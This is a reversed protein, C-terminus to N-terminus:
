GLGASSLFADVRATYNGPMGLQDNVEPHTLDVPLVKVRGGFQAARAAFAEGQPCSAPRKESCVILMPSVPAGSLRLTPSALRWYEPDNGFALDYLPLHERRMIQEVNMAASDLAVTACWRSVGRGATLTPDANLLSILHAGSSHGMLVLRETDGGWGAIRAQVYALAATVDELQTLPDAQPWLRYNISVFLCGGGVWHTVKNRVVRWLDKRGRRWGGGHVMFFVPMRAAEAPLYVDLKQRVDRGYALDREVRAGPPLAFPGLDAIDHTEFGPGDEFESYEV